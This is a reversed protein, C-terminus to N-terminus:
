RWPWQTVYEELEDATMARIKDLEAHNQKFFANRSSSNPGCWHDLHYLSGHVRTVTYGLAKFRYNREWDEPGFSVMHENELGGTLFSDRRFFIAGGVSTTPVPNGHKGTFETAAFIGVDLSSSLGGLWTRPVRAFRGDYPYVMDEGRRCRLAALYLQAPPVFVDCDWNVVIPTTARRAMDNLMLTRHFHKMDWYSMYVVTPSLKQARKTGQEAVIVTTDLDNLLIKVSLLLNEERHRHDVFVPITFTVDTLDLKRERYDVVRWRTPWFDSEDHSKAYAGDFNKPPRVVISGPKEGLWAGWWSFTSNSIVFHRCQTMLCLQEVDSGECFHVGPIGEFQVRCYDLDDSFILINHQEWDPIEEFLALLYFRAPIQAYVPNGVFDGRRVSVAIAPRSLADKYRELVQDQFEPRFTFLQRVEEEANLWYKESQRWGDLDFDDGAHLGDTHYSFCREPVEWAELRGGTPFPGTFYKSYSWSPFTYDHGFQRALGVTAAIQFL